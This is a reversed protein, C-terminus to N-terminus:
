KSLKLSIGTSIDNDPATGYLDTIFFYLLSLDIIRRASEVVILDNDPFRPLFIDVAKILFPSNIIILEVM